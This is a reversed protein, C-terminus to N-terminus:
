PGRLDVDALVLRSVLKSKALDQAICQGVGGCGFIAVEIEKPM